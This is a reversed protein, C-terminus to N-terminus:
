VLATIILGITLLLGFQMHLQATKIDMIAVAQPNNVEAVSIDKANKLAVPLSILILLTWFSLIGGVVLLIVSLYAGFVLAYYEKKSASMGIVTALTKVKAETDHMIDRINNANLIAAVLFGIPLSVLAVKWDFVGTMCFYSGIVMLPGMLLFVLVDGLALYKYGIPKGTYFVGGAIGILGLYLIPLGHVYVLIMGMLFGLAFCAYGINLITKPSIMNEVLVKSSGFTEARDVGKKLDFYESVLNTGSHLLVSAILVIPFLAWMIEGDYHAFAFMAGILVPIVSASFSFPRVAQMIISLKSRELQKEM